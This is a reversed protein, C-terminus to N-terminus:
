FPHFSQTHAMHSLCPSQHLPNPLSSPRPLGQDSPLVKKSSGQQAQQMIPRSSYVIHCSQMNSNYTHDHSVSILIALRHKVHHFRASVWREVMKSLLPVIYHITTRIVHWSRNSALARRNKRKTPYLQEVVPVKKPGLLWQCLVFFFRAGRRLYRPLCTVGDDEVDTPQGRRYTNGARGIFRSM